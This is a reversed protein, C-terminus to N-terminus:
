ISVLVEKLLSKLLYHDKRYHNVSLSFLKALAVLDWTPAVGKLLKHLHNQCIDEM